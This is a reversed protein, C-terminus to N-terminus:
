KMTERIQELEKMKEAIEKKVTAEKEKMRKKTTPLPRIRFDHMLKVDGSWDAVGLLVQAPMHQEGRIYRYVSIASIKRPNGTISCPNENFYKVFSEVRSQEDLNDPEHPDYIFIRQLHSM